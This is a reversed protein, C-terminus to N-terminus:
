EFIDAKNVAMNLVTRGVRSYFRLEEKSGNNKAFNRTLKKM